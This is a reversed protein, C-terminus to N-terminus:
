MTALHNGFTSTLSTFGGVPVQSVFLIPNSQAGARGASALWIVVCCVGLLARRM